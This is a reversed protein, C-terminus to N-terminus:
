SNHENGISICTRGLTETGTSMENKLIDQIAHEPEPEPEPEAEIYHLHRLFRAETGRAGGEVVTRNQGERNRKGQEKRRM